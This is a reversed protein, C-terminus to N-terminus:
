SMLKKVDLLHAPQYSAPSWECGDAFEVGVFYGIERYECYRVRGTFRRAPSDWEIDSGVPLVFETQLCAGSPSIDELLAMAQGQRGSPEKWHVEVMDACLLRGESRRDQM